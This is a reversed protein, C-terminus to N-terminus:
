SLSAYTKEDLAEAGDGGDDERYKIKAVLAKVKELGYPPVTLEDSNLFISSEIANKTTDSAATGTTSTNQKSAPDQPGSQTAITDQKQITNQSANQAAPSSCAALWLMLGLPVYNLKM